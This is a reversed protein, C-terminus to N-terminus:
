DILKLVYTGLYRPCDNAACASISLKASQFSSVFYGTIHKSSGASASIVHFSAWGVFNGSADVVAVPITQGSLHTDVQSFLTTHNGNNHQGIYEGFAITKDITANGTIINSVETTNVNGTGYNTWAIDTAGSPVDGNTEGFNTPTQYHPTGDDAFASASFIFPGAGHASDPFGAQAEAETGIPWTSMGVVGLISNRHLATIRVRVQIGNSTDYSVAVNTGGTGHTFGNRQTVLRARDTALTESQNILYDNAAALAALDSATQQQRKMAFASGGDLALGALSLMVVLAVAFIALIQGGDRRPSRGARGTLLRRIANM